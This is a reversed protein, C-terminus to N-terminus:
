SFPAYLRSASMFIAVFSMQYITLFFNEKQLIQYKYINKVRKNLPNLKKSFFKENFDASTDFTLFIYKTFM